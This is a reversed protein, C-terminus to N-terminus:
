ALDVLVAPIMSDEDIVYSACIRHYGDAIVLPRPVTMDGRVVLVPSLKTGDSVKKLNKRVQPDNDGLLPLGSARVLDNARHMTVPADEMAKATAAARKDSLTLGLYTAAATYDKDVPRDLWEIKNAM